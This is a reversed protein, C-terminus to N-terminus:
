YYFHLVTFGIMNFLIQVVEIRRSLKVSFVTNMLLYTSLIILLIKTFIPYSIGLTATIILSLVFLGPVLQRLNSPRKIKKNVLPKFYGYQYYMKWLKTYSDRAYYKISLGPVLFIKGGALNLRANFEDDQNRILEEDFYGIQSFVEPRYFGPSVTDVQKPEATGLRFLANGVGFPHALVNAIAGAKKSPDAPVTIIPCGVNDAKLTNIWSHLSTIYNSPFAMHADIRVFYGKSNKIGINLASPASLDPNDIMRLWSYKQTYGNIIDRTGDDSMGDIVLIQLKDKPYDQSVLDQLLQGIYKKENRCPIVITIFESTINM